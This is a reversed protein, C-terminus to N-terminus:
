LTIFVFKKKRKTKHKVRPTIAEKSKFSDITTFDFLRSNEEFLEKSDLVGTDILIYSSRSFYEL